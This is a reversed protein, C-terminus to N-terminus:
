GNVMGKERLQQAIQGITTDYYHQECVYVIKSDVTRCMNTGMGCFICRKENVPEELKALEEEPIKDKAIFRNDKMYRFGHKSPIKTYM